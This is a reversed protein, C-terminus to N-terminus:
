RRALRRGRRRIGQWVSDTVPFHESKIGEEILSDFGAPHPPEYAQLIVLRGGRAIVTPRGQLAADALRGLCSKAEGLSCTKMDLEPMPRKQAITLGAARPLRKERYRSLKHNSRTALSIFGASFEGAVRSNHGQVV